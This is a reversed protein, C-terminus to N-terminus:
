RWRYYTVYKNDSVHDTYENKFMDIFGKSRKMLGKYLDLRKIENKAVHIEIAFINDLGIHSMSTLFVKRATNLVVFALNGLKGSQVTNREDDKFQYKMVLMKPNKEYQSSLEALLTTEIKEMQHKVIDEKLSSIERECSTVDVISTFVHGNIDFVYELHRINNKIEDKILVPDEFSELLFDSYKEYFFDWDFRSYNTKINLYDLNKNENFFM